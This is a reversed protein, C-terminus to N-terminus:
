SPEPNAKPLPVSPEPSQAEVIRQGQMASLMAGVSINMHRKLVRPQGPAPKPKPKPKAASAQPAPKALAENPPAGLAAQVLRLSMLQSASHQTEVGLMPIPPLPITDEAELGELQDEPRDAPPWIRKLTVLGNEPVVATVEAEKFESAVPKRDRVELLKYAIVDSVVLSRLCSPFSGYDKLPAPASKPEQKQEQKQEEEIRRLVAAKVAAVDRQKQKEVGELIRSAEKAGFKPPGRSLVAPQTRPPEPEAAAPQHSDIQSSSTANQPSRRAEDSSNSFKAHMNIQALYQMSNMGRPRDNKGKRRGGGQLTFNYPKALVAPDVAAPKPPPPRQKRSSAPKPKSCPGPSPSPSVLNESATDSSSSSKKAPPKPKPKPRPKEPPGCSSSSDSDSDAQRRQPTKAAVRKPLPKATKAPQSSSSDDTSDLPAANGTPVTSMPATSPVSTM